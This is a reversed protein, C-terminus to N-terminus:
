RGDPSVTLVPEGWATEEWSLAVPEPRDPSWVYAATNVAAAVRPPDGPVFAVQRATSTPGVYERM